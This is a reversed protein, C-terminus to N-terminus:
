IKKNIKIINLFKIQYDLYQNNILLIYNNIMKRKYYSKMKKNVKDKKMM